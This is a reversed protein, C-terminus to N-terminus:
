LEGREKLFHGKKSVDLVIDISVYHIPPDFFTWFHASTNYPHDRPKAESTHQPHFFTAFM